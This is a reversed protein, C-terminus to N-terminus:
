RCNNCISRLRLNKNKKLREVLIENFREIAEQTIVGFALHLDRFNCHPVYVAYATDYMLTRETSRREISEEFAYVLEDIVLSVRNRKSSESETHPKPLIVNKLKSFFDM